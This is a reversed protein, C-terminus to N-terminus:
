KEIALKYFENLPVIYNNYFNNTIDSRIKWAEDITNKVMVYELYLNDNKQGPRDLRGKQQIIIDLHNMRTIITDYDILDNLGYTGEQYTIVVNTNKEPYKSTNKCYASIKDAEAKSKAYILCRRNVKNIITQVSECFDFDMNVVRLLANYKKDVPLNSNKIKNYKQRNVYDLNFENINTIWNRSQKIHCFVHENIITNLFLKTEPYGSRFMKLMYYLKDFRTRFFTASMMIVGYKSLLIQRYASETQLSSSNQVSLCEDIIVLTWLNFIPTDRIRGLTTIAITNETIIDNSWSGNSYQQIIKINETHNNIETIWTDILRMNPVLVLCGKYNTINNKINNEVLLKFTNLSTLTKGSGVSAADGFGKKGNILGNAMSNSTLIQHQWLPTKINIVVNQNDNLNKNNIVTKNNIVDTNNIGLKIKQTRTKKTKTLVIGQCKKTEDKVESVVKSSVAESSVVESSVVQNLLKDIDNLLIMYEPVNKNLNFTMMNENKIQIVQSYLITFLLLIRMIPGEYIYDCAANLKKGSRTVQYITITNENSILRIYINQWIKKPIKFAYQKWDFTYKTNLNYYYKGYYKLKNLLKFGKHYYNNTLYLADKILSSLINDPRYIDINNCKEIFPTGNFIDTQIDNVCFIFKDNNKIIKIKVPSEFKWKYSSPLQYLNISHPTQYEQLLQECYKQYKSDPEFNTNYRKKFNFGKENFSIVINNFSLNQGFILLFALRSINKIDEFIYQTNLKEFNIEPDNFKYIKFMNKQCYQIINNKINVQNNLRYNYSSQTNWIDKSINMTSYEENPINNLSAQVYLLLNPSCHMDNSVILTELTKETNIPKLKLFKLENFQIKKTIVYDISKKIMTKDGKMMPITKLALKFSSIILDNKDIAYDPEIEKGLRWNFIEKNQQVYLATNILKNLIINDYQLTSDLYMLLSYCFLDFMSCLKKSQTNFPMADEIISIFLRWAIQKASSVQMYQQEPLNYPPLTHMKKICDSLLLSNDPGRRICKQLCSSLFSVKNFLIKFTNNKGNNFNNYIDDYDSKVFKPFSKPNIVLLINTNDSEFNLFSYNKYKNKNFNTTANTANTSNTANTAIIDCVNDCLLIYDYNNTIDNFNIYKNQIINLNYTCCYSVPPKGIRWELNDMESHLIKANIFSRGIWEEPVIPINNNCGVSHIIFSANIPDSCTLLIYDILNKDDVESCEFHKYHKEDINTCNQLWKKIVFYIINTGYKIVSQSLNLISVVSELSTDIKNLAKIIRRDTLLPLIDVTAKIGLGSYESEERKIAIQGNKLGYNAITKIPKNDYLRAKYSEKTHLQIQKILNANSM